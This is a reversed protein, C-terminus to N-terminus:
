SGLVLYHIFLTFNSYSTRMSSFFIHDSVKSYSCPNENRRDPCGVHRYKSPAFILRMQPRFIARQSGPTGRFPGMFPWYSMYGHLIGVTVPKLDKPGRWLAVPSTPCNRGTLLHAPDFFFSKKEGSFIKMSQGTSAFILTNFPVLCTNQGM